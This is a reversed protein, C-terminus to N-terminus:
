KFLLADFVTAVQFFASIYAVAQLPRYVVCRAVACQASCVACQVGCLTIYVVCRALACQM